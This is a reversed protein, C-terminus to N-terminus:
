APIEIVDAASMEGLPFSEHAGMCSFVTLPIDAACRRRKTRANMTTLITYRNTRAEDARM